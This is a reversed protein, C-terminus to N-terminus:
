AKAVKSNIEVKRQIPLELLLAHVARHPQDALAYAAM